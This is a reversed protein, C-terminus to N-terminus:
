KSFESTIYIYLAVAALAVIAVACGALLHRNEPAM